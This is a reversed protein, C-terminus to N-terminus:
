YENHISSSSSIYLCRVQAKPDLEKALSCGGYGGGVIVVKKPISVSGGM